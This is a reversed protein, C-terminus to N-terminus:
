YLTSAGTSFTRFMVEDVLTAKAEFPPLDFPPPPSLFLFFSSFPCGVVVYVDLEVVVDYTTEM